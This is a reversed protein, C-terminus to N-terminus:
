FAKNVSQEAEGQIDGQRDNVEVGVDQRVGMEYHAALKAPLRRAELRHSMRRVYGNVLAVFFFLVFALGPTPSCTSIDIEDCDREKEVDVSPTVTGKNM